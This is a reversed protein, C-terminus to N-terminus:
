LQLAILSPNLSFHHTQRSSKLFSKVVRMYPTKSSYGDGCGTVEDSKCKWREFTTTAKSIRLLEKAHGGSLLEKHAPVTAPGEPSRCWLRTTRHRGTGLKLAQFKMCSLLLRSFGIVCVAYALARPTFLLVMEFCIAAPM